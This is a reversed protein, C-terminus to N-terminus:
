PGVVRLYVALFDSGSGNHALFSTTNVRRVKLDGDPFGYGSGQYGVVGLQMVFPATSYSVGVASITHTSFIGTTKMAVVFQMWTWGTTLLIFKDLPLAGGGPALLAGGYQSPDMGYDDWQSPDYEEGINIFDSTLNDYGYLGGDSGRLFVKTTAETNYFAGNMTPIALMADMDLLSFPEFYGFHYAGVPHSGGASGLGLYSGDFAMGISELVPGSLCEGYIWVDGAGTGDNTFQGILQPTQGHVLVKCGIQVSPDAATFHGVAYGYENFSERVWSISSPVYLSNMGWADAPSSSANVTPGPRLANARVHFAASDMPIAPHNVTTEAGDAIAYDFGEAPVLEIDTYPEGGGGGGGQQLATVDERLSATQLQLAETEEKAAQFNARTQSTSANGSQPHLPNIRSAM